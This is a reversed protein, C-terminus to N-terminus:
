GHRSLFLGSRHDGRQWGPLGHAIAPNSSRRSGVFPASSREVSAGTRNVM